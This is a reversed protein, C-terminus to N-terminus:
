AVRTRERQEDEDGSQSPWVALNEAAARMCNKDILGDGESASKVAADRALRRFEQTWYDLENVAAPTIRIDKSSEMGNQEMVPTGPIDLQM